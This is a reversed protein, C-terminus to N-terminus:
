VRVAGLDLAARVRQTTAGGLPEAQSNKAARIEVTKLNYRLVVSDGDALLVELDSYRQLLERGQPSREDVSTAPREGELGKQVWGAGETWVFKLGDVEGTTTQVSGLPPEGFYTEVIEREPQGNRAALTERQTGDGVRLFLVSSAVLVFLLAASNRFLPQSPVEFLWRLRALWRQLLAQPQAAVQRRIQARLALPPAASSLSAVGGVVRQFDQLRSRCAACSHFHAEVRQTETTGLESDLYASLLETTLHRNM